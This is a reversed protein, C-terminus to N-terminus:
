QRNRQCLSKIIAHSMYKRQPCKLLHPLSLFHGSLVYINQVRKRMKITSQTVLCNIHVIEGRGLLRPRPCGTHAIYSFFLGYKRVLEEKFIATLPPNVRKARGAPLGSM